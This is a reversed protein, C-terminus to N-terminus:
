FRYDSVQKLQININPKKKFNEQVGVNKFFFFGFIKKQMENEFDITQFKNYLQINYSLKKKLKEHVGIIKFFFDLFNKTRM